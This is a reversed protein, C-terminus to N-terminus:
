RCPGWRSSPRARPQGRRRWRTSSHWWTQARCSSHEISAATPAHHQAVLTTAAARQKKCASLISTYLEFCDGDTRDPQRIMRLGARVSQCICCQVLKSQGLPAYCIDPHALARMRNGHRPQCLVRLTIVRFNNRCVNYQSAASLAAVAACRTGCAAVTSFASSVDSCACKGGAGLQALEEAPREIERGCVALNVAAFHAGSPPSPAHCPSASKGTM